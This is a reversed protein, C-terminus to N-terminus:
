VRDLWIACSCALFLFPCSCLVVEVFVQKIEGSSLDIEINGYKESLENQIKIFEENIKNIELILNTKLFELEGVKLQRLDVEKKINIIKELEDSNLKKVQNEM